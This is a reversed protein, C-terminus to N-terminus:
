SVVDLLIALREKLDEIGKVGDIVALIRTPDDTDSFIKEAKASCNPLLASLTQHAISKLNAVVFVRHSVSDSQFSPFRLFIHWLKKRAIERNFAPVALFTIGQLRSKHTRQLTFATGYKALEGKKDPPVRFGASKLQKYAAAAPGVWSIVNKMQLDFHIRLNGAPDSDVARFHDSRATYIVPRGSGDAYGAEFYASPRAYTLDTLCLDCQELLAFMKDDIDDNHEVHDVRLPEVGLDKFVPRIAKTYLQDVDDQGFASAVFCKLHAM